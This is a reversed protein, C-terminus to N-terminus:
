QNAQQAEIGPVAISYRKETKGEKIIKDDSFDKVISIKLM